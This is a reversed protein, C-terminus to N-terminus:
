IIQIKFIKYVYQFYEYSSVRIKYLNFIRLKNIEYRNKKLIGNHLKNFNVTTM